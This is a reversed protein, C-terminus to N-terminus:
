KNIKRSGTNQIIHLLYALMTMCDKHLECSFKGHLTYKHQRSNRTLTPGLTVLTNRYAQSLPNAKHGRSRMNNTRIAHLSLFLKKSSDESQQSIVNLLLRSSYCNRLVNFIQALHPIQIIKGQYINNEISSHLIFVGM